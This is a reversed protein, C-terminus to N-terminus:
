ETKNLRSILLHYGHSGHSLARAVRTVTTTSAGTNESIDRYSLGQEIKQAVRWREQLKREEQPTCLDHLFKKCEETSKLALIAKYFSHEKM